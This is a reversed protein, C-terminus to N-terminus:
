KTSEKINIKSLLYCFFMMIIFFFVVRSYIKISKLYTKDGRKEIEFYSNFRGIKYYKMSFFKFFSKFIIYMWMVIMPHM